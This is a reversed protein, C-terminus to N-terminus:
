LGCPGLGPIDAEPGLTPCDPGRGDIGVGSASLFVLKRLFMFPSLFTVMIRDSSGFITEKSTRLCASASSILDPLFIEASGSSGPCSTSTWACSVTFALLLALFRAPEAPFLCCCNVLDAGPCPVGDIIGLRSSLVAALKRLAYSALFESNFSFTDLAFLRQTSDPACCPLSSCM